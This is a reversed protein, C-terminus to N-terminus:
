KNKRAYETFQAYRQVRIAVFVAAFNCTKVFLALRKVLKM